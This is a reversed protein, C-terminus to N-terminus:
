APVPVQVSEPLTFWFTSGVGEESTVGVAGGHSEVILKSIALGLGTGEKKESGKVRQYPQFLKQMQDQPMGCGTDRVEFRVFGAESRSTKVTISGGEPTFKVANSLFNVLVQTSRELDADLFLPEGEVQLAIQKVEAMGAIAGISREVLIESRCRNKIIEMKGAEIKAIDLLDTVMSILRLSEQSARDALRMGRPDLEGFVRQMLLGLFGRISTLPSRLDHSVISIFEKRVRDIEAQQERERRAALALAEAMQHFTEDLYAIEDNGPLRPNLQQSNALRRSNDTLVQLRSSLGRSFALVLAVALIVNACVGLLLISKIQSTYSHEQPMALRRHEEVILEVAESLKGITPKMESLLEHLKVAAGLQGPQQIVDRAENILDMTTQTEVSITHLQERDAPRKAALEELAQLRLPLERCITEYRKYSAEDRTAAYALLSAISGYLMQSASSGELVIQKSIDAEAAKTEAQYTIGYLSGLLVMEFALLGSVFLLAKHFVKM